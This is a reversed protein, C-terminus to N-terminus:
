RGQEQSFWGGECEFGAAGSGWVLGNDYRLRWDAQAEDAVLHRALRNPVAGLLRADASVSRINPCLELQRLVKAVVDGGQGDPMPAPARFLPGRVGAVLSCVVLFALLTQAPLQGRHRLEQWLLWGSMCIMPMAFPWWGPAALSLGDGGLAPMAVRVAFFVYAVCATLGWAVRSRRLPDFLFPLQLAFLFVGAEQRVGLALALWVTWTLTRGRLLAEFALLALPVFFFEPRAASLLELVPPNLLLAACALAREWAASQPSLIRLLRALAWASALWSALVLAPLVFSSPFLTMPISWLILSPTFERALRSSEEGFSQFWRGERSVSTLTENWLLFDSEWFGLGRYRVWLRWGLILGAM